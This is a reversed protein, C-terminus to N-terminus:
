LRGGGGNQPPRMVVAVAKRPGCEVTLHMLPLINASM